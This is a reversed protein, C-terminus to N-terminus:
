KEVKLVRVGRAGIRGDLARVRVLLTKRPLVDPLTLTCAFRGGTVKAPARLLVLDSAQAQRRLLAQDREAGKHTPLALLGAPPTAFSREVTVDVCAGALAEPLAGSVVVSAGAAIRGEIELNLAAPLLPLRLAPDGLLMWMELHEERQVALPVQGGSGDARDYIMFTLQNIKGHALGRKIALWWAGLREPPREAELLPLLGEFALKAMSGYSEGFAGVVAVPGRPNRMAALGYGEGRKGGWHCAWCGCTLFIGATPALDVEAWDKRALFPAGDSYLGSAGSHGLYISLLQGEHLRALSQSRLLRDPPCFPSVDMHVVAGTQWQPHVRRFGTMINNNVLKAGMLREIASGGGPHGVLLTIHHRWGSSDWPAERQKELALTKSVMARADEVSSVPFRGVAVEPMLDADLCGYGNDSPKGSMRGITGLLTPVVTSHTAEAGEAAVAGVLLISCSGAAQACLGTLKAKLKAAVTLGEAEPVSAPVSPSGRLVGMDVRVVEFGQARRAECLPDLAERYAPACVVIWRPAPEEATASPVAAGLGLLLLVLCWRRSSRSGKHSMGM